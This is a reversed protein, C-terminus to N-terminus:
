KRKRVASKTAAAASSKKKSREFEERESTGVPFIDEDWEWPEVIPSVIDGVVKVKGKLFGFISEPKEEPIPVLKAMPKGRKTIILEGHNAHIDDIIALCKAKFAGAGISKM